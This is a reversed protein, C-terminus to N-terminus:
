FKSMKTSLYLLLVILLLCSQCGGARWIGSEQPGLSVLCFNKAVWSVVSLQWVPFCSQLIRGRRCPCWPKSRSTESARNRAQKGLEASIERENWSYAAQSGAQKVRRELLNRWSLVSLCQCRLLWRGRELSAGWRVPLLWARRRSGLHAEKLFCLTSYVHM